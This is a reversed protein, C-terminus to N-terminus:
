EGESIDVPESIYDWFVCRGSWKQKIKLFFLKRLFYNSFSIKLTLNLQLFEFILIWVKVLNMILPKLKSKKLIPVSHIALGDILQFYLYNSHFIQVSWTLHWNKM